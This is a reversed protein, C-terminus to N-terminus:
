TEDQTTHHQSDLIGAPRSLPARRLARGEPPLHPPPEPRDEAAQEHVRDGQDTITTGHPGRTWSPCTTRLFYVGSNKDVNEPIAIRRRIAAMNQPNKEDREYEIVYHKAISPYKQIARGVREIVKEYKKVGGKKSLAGHAKNLETEFRERFQRNM